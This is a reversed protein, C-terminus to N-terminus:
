AVIRRSGGRDKNGEQADRLDFVKRRVQGLVRSYQNPEVLAKGSVFKLLLDSLQETQIFFFTCVGGEWAMDDVELGSYILFSAIPTQDTEFRDDEVVDTMTM